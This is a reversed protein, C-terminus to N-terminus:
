STADLMELCHRAIAARTSALRVLDPTPESDLHEWPVTSLGTFIMMQLAHARRVDVAPIGCGEARLGAVYADMCLEDLEALEGPNRRGIQVDGVVLQALDFGVPLPNWFGYDILTFGPRDGRVMLNNPCADGHGTLVPFTVLEEVLEDARDAAALLRARLAEDFAGAVLPHAWLEERRLMPIVQGHLRGHLYFTVDWALEGVAAYPALDASGALRGLLRAAERFRATDWPVDIAPVVELWVAASLEDIDFVGLARAMALGEPLHDGLRSRYALAETRWPVMAAAMERLEEPVTAFLPSREWSQLHKVFFAFPRDGAFTRAIGRVWYRGATTIAALDYPVVEAV